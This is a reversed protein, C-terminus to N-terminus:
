CCHVFEPNETSSRLGLKQVFQHIKQSNRDNFRTKSAEPTPQNTFNLCSNPFKNNQTSMCQKHNQLFQNNKKEHNKHKSISIRLKLCLESDTTKTQDSHSPEPLSQDFIEQPKRPCFRRRLEHFQISAPIRLAIRPQDIQITQM